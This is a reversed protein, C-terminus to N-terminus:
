NIKLIDRVKRVFEPVMIKLSTEIIILHPKKEFIFIYKGGSKLQIHKVQESYFLNLVKRIRYWVFSLFFPHIPLHARGELVRSRYDMFFVNEVYDLEAIEHFLQTPIPPHLMQKEDLIRLGELVVSNWPQTITHAPPEIGAEVKFQGDPLALMEYVAKEGIFPGFEAHIIEGNAFYIAGEKNANRVTVKAVNREICNIQIINVLKLDKLSGVLAM